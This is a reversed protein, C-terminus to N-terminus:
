CMDQCRFIWSFDFVHGFFMAYSNEQGVDIELTKKKKLKSGLPRFRRSKCDLEPSVGDIKCCQLNRCNEIRKSPALIAKKGAKGIGQM